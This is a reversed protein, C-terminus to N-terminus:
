VLRGSCGLMVSESSKTLAFWATRIVPTTTNKILMTANSVEVGSPMQQSEHRSSILSLQLQPLRRCLVCVHFTHLVRSCLLHWHRVVTLLM